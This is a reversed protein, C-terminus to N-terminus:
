FTSRLNIAAVKWETKEKIMYVEEQFTGAPYTALFVFSYFEAKVDDFLLPLRETRQSFLLKREQPAGPTAQAISGFTAVAKAESTLGVSKQLTSIKERYLKSIQNGHMLTLASLAEQKAQDEDSNEKATREGAQAITVTPQLVFIGISRFLM